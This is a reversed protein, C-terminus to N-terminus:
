RFAVKVLQIVELPVDMSKSMERWDGKSNLITVVDSSPRQIQGAMFAIDSGKTSDMQNHPLMKVIADERLAMDIQVTELANQIEERTFLNAVSAAGSGLAEGIRYMIGRRDSQLAEGSQQPPPMQVQNANLDQPAELQPIPPPQERQPVPPAPQRPPVPNAPPLPQPEPRPAVPPAEEIPQIPQQPPPQEQPLPAPPPADGTLIGHGGRMVRELFSGGPNADVLEQISPVTMGQEEAKARINNYLALAQAKNSWGGGYKMRNDRDYSGLLNKGHKSQALEPNDLFYNIHALPDEAPVGAQAEVMAEAPDQEVANPPAERNRIGFNHRNVVPIVNGDGLPLPASGFHPMKNRLTPHQVWAQKFAEMTTLPQGRAAYEHMMDRIAKHGENDIYVSNPHLRHSEIYERTSGGGRIEKLGEAYPRAWSEPSRGYQDRNVTRLAVTGNQFAEFPNKKDMKGPVGNRWMPTLQGNADFAPDIQMPMAQPKGRALAENYKEMMKNNTIEIAQNITAAGAQIAKNKAAIFAEEGYPGHPGSYIIDADQQTLGSAEGQYIAEWMADAEVGTMHAGGIDETSVPMAGMSGDPQAYGILGNILEDWDYHGLGKQIMFQDLVAWGAISM